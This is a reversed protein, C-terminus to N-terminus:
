PRGEPFIQKFEQRTSLGCFKLSVRPLSVRSPQKTKSQIDSPIIKLYRREAECTVSRVQLLEASTFQPFRSIVISFDCHLHIVQLHIRQGTKWQSYISIKFTLPNSSGEPHGGFSDRETFIGLALAYMAIAPCDCKM